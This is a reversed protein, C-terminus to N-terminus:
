HGVEEDVEQQEGNQWRLGAWLQMIGLLPSICPDDPSDAAQLDCPCGEWHRSRIDAEDDDEDDDDSDEDEEDDDDSDSNGVPVATMQKTSSESLSPPHISVETPATSTTAGEVGDPPQNDPDSLDNPGLRHLFELLVPTAFWELLSMTYRLRMFISFELQHYKRTLSANSLRHFQNLALGFDAESFIAVARSPSLAVRGRDWPKHVAIWLCIGNCPDDIGCCMLRPIFRQVIHEFYLHATRPIIHAAELDYTSSGLACVDGCHANVKNAFVKQKREPAEAKPIVPCRMLESLILPIYFNGSLPSDDSAVMTCNPDTFIPLESVTTDLHRGLIADIVERFDCVTAWNGQTFALWLSPQPRLWPKWNLFYSQLLPETPKADARLRVHVTFDPVFHTVAAHRSALVATERALLELSSEVKSRLLRYLASVVDMNRPIPGEGYLNHMQEDYLESIKKDGAESHFCGVAATLFGKLQAAETPSTDWLLQLIADSAPSIELTRALIANYDARIHEPVNRLGLEYLTIPHKQYHWPVTDGQM